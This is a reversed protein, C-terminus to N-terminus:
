WSLAAPRGNGAGRRAHPGGGDAARYGPRGSRRAPRGKETSLRAGGDCGPAKGSPGGYESCAKIFKGGPNFHVVRRNGYGDSVFIDGAPTVAMDTPSNFHRRGRRIQGANRADVATQRGAHAKLTYAHRATPFDVTKRLANRTEPESALLHRIM